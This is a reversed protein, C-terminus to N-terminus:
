LGNFIMNHYPGRNENQKNNRETRVPLFYSQCEIIGRGGVTWEEGAIFTGLTDDMRQLFVAHRFSREEDKRAIDALSRL